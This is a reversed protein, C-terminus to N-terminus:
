VFKLLHRVCTSVAPNSLDISANVFNELLAHFSSELHKFFSHRFTKTSPPKAVCFLDQSVHLSLMGPVLANQLYKMIKM